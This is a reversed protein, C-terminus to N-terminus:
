IIIDVRFDVFVNRAVVVVLM